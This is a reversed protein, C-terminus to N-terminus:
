HIDVSQVHADGCDGSVGVIITTHLLCLSWLLNCLDSRVSKLFTPRSYSSIHNGWYYLNDGYAAAARHGVRHHHKSDSYIEMVEGESSHYTAAYWPLSMALYYCCPSASRAIGAPPNHTSFRHDLASHLVGPALRYCNEVIRLKLEPTPLQARKSSYVIGIFDHSDRLADHGEFVLV